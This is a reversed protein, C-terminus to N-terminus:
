ESNDQIVLTRLLITGTIAGAVGGGVLGSFASTLYMPFPLWYNLGLFVLFGVGWGSLSGWWWQKANEIERRMVRTQLWSSGVIGSLLSIWTPPELFLADYGGWMIAYLFHAAIVLIGGLVGGVLGWGIVSARLLEQMFARDSNRWCYLLMSQFLGQITGWITAGLIFWWVMGEGMLASKMSLHYGAGGLGAWFTIAGVWFFRRTQAAIHHKM